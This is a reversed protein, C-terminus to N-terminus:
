IAIPLGSPNRLATVVPACAGQKAALMSMARDSGPGM